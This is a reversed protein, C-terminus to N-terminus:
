STAEFVSGAPVVKAADVVLVGRELSLEYRALPRPAPGDTVAGDLSYRSGHCPCFIGRRSADYRTVCGLHTCVASLAYFGAATRIVYVRQRSLVLVTGPAIDEPRGVGFRKEEEFLVNPEIFRLTAAGLGLGVVGLAGAGVLALFRRRELEQEATGLKLDDILAM